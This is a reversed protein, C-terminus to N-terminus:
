QVTFNSIRKTLSRTRALDLVHNALALDLIGLGYPSFVRCRNSSFRQSNNIAEGISYINGIKSDRKIAEGLSTGSRSSEKLDDVLNTCEELLEPLLDRLSLHLIVPKHAISDLDKFYPTSSTTAFIVLSSNKVVTVPSESLAIEFAWGPLFGRLNSSFMEVAKKSIDFIIIEKIIIGSKVLFAVTCAAIFGAGVIGLTHRQSKESEELLINAGLAASAATRYASINSGEILALPLGTDFSNLIIQGYARRLGRSPNSTRSSIWKMGVAPEKGETALICAPLAIARDAIDESLRLTSSPPNITLQKEHMVYTEKVITTIAEMSESLLMNSIEGTVIDLDNM